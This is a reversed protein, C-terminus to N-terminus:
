FHQNIDDLLKRLQKNSKILRRYTFFCMILQSTCFGAM